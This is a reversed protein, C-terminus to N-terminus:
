PIICFIPDTCNVGAFTVDIDVSLAKQELREFVSSLVYGTCLGSTCANGSSNIGQYSYKYLITDIPDNPINSIYGYDKLVALENGPPYLGNRDVSYLELANKIQKLDEFRRSDRSNQGTDDFIFFLSVIFIGILAIVVWFEILVFWRKRSSIKFNESM